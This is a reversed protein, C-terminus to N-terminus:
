IILSYHLDEENSETGIYCKQDSYRNSSIYNELIIIAYVKHIM